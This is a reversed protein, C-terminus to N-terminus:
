RTSSAGAGDTFATHTARTKSEQNEVRDLAGSGVRQGGRPEGRTAQNGLLGYTFRARTSFPRRTKSSGVVKRVSRHEIEYELILAIIQAVLITLRQVRASVRKHSDSLALRTRRTARVGTLRGTMVVGSASACIR